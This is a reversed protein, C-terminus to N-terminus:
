DELSLNIQVDVKFDLKKAVVIKGKQKWDDETLEEKIWKLAEDKTEFEHVVYGDDFYDVCVIYM